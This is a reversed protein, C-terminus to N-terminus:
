HAFRGSARRSAEEPPPSQPPQYSQAPSPKAAIAETQETTSALPTQGARAEDRSVAPILRSKEPGPRTPADSQSSPEVSSPLTRSSSEHSPTKAPSQSPQNSSWNADNEDSAHSVFSSPTQSLDSADDQTSADSADDRQHLHSSRRAARNSELTQARRQRETLFNATPAVSVVYETENIEQSGREPPSPPGVVAGSIPASLVGGALLPPEYLSALRPKIETAPELNRVVLNSLFDSM